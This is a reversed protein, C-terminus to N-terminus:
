ERSDRIIKSFDQCPQDTAEGRDMCGRLFAAGVGGRLTPAPRHPFEGPDLRM